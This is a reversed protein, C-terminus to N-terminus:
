SAGHRERVRSPHQGGITETGFRDQAHSMGAGVRDRQPARAMTPEAAPRKAVSGPFADRLSEPARRRRQSESAGPMMLASQGAAPVM